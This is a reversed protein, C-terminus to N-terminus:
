MMLLTNQLFNQKTKQPRKKLKVVPDLKHTTPSKTFDHFQHLVLGVPQWIEMSESCINYTSEKEGSFYLWQVRKNKKKKFKLSCNNYIVISDFKLTQQICISGWFICRSYANIM